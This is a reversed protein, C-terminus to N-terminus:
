PPDIDKQLCGRSRSRMWIEWPMTCIMSSRHLPHPKQISNQGLLIKAIELHGYSAHGLEHGIVFDLEESTLVGKEVLVRKLRNLDRLKSEMRARILPTRRITATCLAMGSLLVVIGIGLAVPTIFRAYKM